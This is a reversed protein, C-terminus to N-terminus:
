KGILVFYVTVVGRADALEKGVVALVRIQCLCLMFKQILVVHIVIQEDFLTVM